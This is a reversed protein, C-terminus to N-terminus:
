ERYQTAHYYISGQEKKNKGRAKKIMGRNYLAMEVRSIKEGNQEVIIVCWCALKPTNTVYEAYLLQM